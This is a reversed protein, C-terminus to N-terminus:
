SLFSKSNKKFLLFFFVTLEFLCFLTLVIFVFEFTNFSLSNTINLVILLSFFYFNKRIIELYVNYNFNYFLFLLCFFNFLVLQGYYMWFTYLSFYFSLYNFLQAEFYLSLTKFIVINNFSLFFFCCLPFIVSNFILIFVIFSNIIFLLFFKFNFYIVLSFISILFAITQFFYIIVFWQDILFVGLLIYTYLVEKINTLVFNIKIYSCISFVIM